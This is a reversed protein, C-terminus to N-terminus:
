QRSMAFHMLQEPELLHDHSDTGVELRVWNIEGTFANDGAGYEDSIPSGADTGVGGTECLSYNFAHTREIRGSALENGDAYLTATGGKGIGGGDYDFEVRVQHQGTALADTAAITTRQMGLFNYHYTPRGDKLYLAWGGTQGGENVIVGEPKGDVVIEATIAHSKNKLNLMCNEQLGIMGDFLM